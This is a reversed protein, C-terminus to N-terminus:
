EKSEQAATVWEERREPGLTDGLFSTDLIV